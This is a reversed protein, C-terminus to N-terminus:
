AGGRLRRHTALFFPIAVVQATVSFAVPEEAAMGPDRGALGTM